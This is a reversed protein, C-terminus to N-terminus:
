AGIQLLHFPVHPPKDGILRYCAALCGLKRPTPHCLTWKARQGGNRRSYWDRIISTSHPSILPIVPLPFRLVRYFGAGTGSQGCCISFSTVRAVIILLWHSVAQAVSHGQALRVAPRV